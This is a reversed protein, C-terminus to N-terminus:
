AGLAWAAFIRGRGALNSLHLDTAQAVPPTERSSPRLHNPHAEGM